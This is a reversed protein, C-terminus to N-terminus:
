LMECSFLTDGKEVAQSERVKIEVVGEVPMAYIRRADNRLEWRGPLAVTAGIHRKEATAFTLGLLRRASESVDFSATDNCDDDDDDHDDDDDDNDDHDACDVGCTPATHDHGGCGCLLLGFTLFPFIFLKM